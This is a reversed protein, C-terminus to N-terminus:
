LPSTKGSLMTASSRFNGAIRSPRDAVRIDFGANQFLPDQQSSTELQLLVDVEARHLKVVFAKARELVLFRFINIEHDHAFVILPQVRARASKDEFARRMFHSQLFTDIRAPADFTAQSKSEFKGALAVFVF